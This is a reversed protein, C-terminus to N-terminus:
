KKVTVAKAASWGSYFKASGVTKYTRIRVYYKKGKALSGITRTLTSNKTITVSKSSTFKSSTSYQIQYGTGVANKKWKVTMKGSSPSTVSSLATKTPNVTITIKKTTASYNTSEPATIKITAKGIFKAKVTVKGAKSVTVSKSNSKYTPTGKKIKVGLSFVQSKTSYTRTISKATITNAIKKITFTKAATGTFYGNGTATVTAKGANTNNNYVITYDTNLVLKREGYNLSVAPKRATGNYSYSTPTITMNCESLDLAKEAWTIQGGYNQCKEPSWTNLFNNYYATATISSVGFANESINPACTKFNLEKLKSKGGGSDGCRFASASVTTTQPAFVINEKGEPCYLLETLDANYLCGDYSKYTANNPDVAIEVLKEAGAFASTTNMIYNYEVVINSVSAPIEISTLKKCGQFALSDIEIVSNPIDISEINECGSFLRNPIKTIGSSLKVTQLGTCGKFASYYITEVSDPIDLNELSTCNEFANQEIINLNEPLTITKLNNCNQFAFRGITELNGDTPFEVKSLNHCSEFARGAVSTVSKALKVSQLENCNEFCAAPIVETGEIFTVSEVASYQFDEGFTDDLCINVKRFNARVLGNGKLLQGTRPNVFEMKVPNNTSGITITDCGTNYFACWGIRRLSRPLKIGNIRAKTGFQPSGVYSFAGSGIGTVGEKVIIRKINKRINDDSVWPPLEGASYATQVYSDFYAYDYMDGEGSITLTLNDGAGKVTYTLNEGCSGSAIEDGVEEVQIGHDISLSIDSTNEEITYTYSTEQSLSECCIVTGSSIDGGIGIVNDGSLDLELADTKNGTVTFTVIDDNLIPLDDSTISLTFPSSSNVSCKDGESYAVSGGGESEFYIYSDGTYLSFDGGALTEIKYGGKELLYKAKCLDLDGPVYTRRHLKESLNPTANDFLYLSELVSGSFIFYPNGTSPTDGTEPLIKELDNTVFQFFFDNDSYIGQESGCYHLTKNAANGAMVGNEFIVCNSLDESIYICTDNSNNGDYVYNPNITLLRYKYSKGDIVFGNNNTEIGYVLIAHAACGDNHNKSYKSYDYCFAYDVYILKNTNDINKSLNYIYQLASKGSYLNMFDHQKLTYSPGTLCYQNIGVFEQVKSNNAPADVDHLVNAGNQISGPSIHGEHNQIVLSILGACVGGFSSAERLIEKVEEVTFKHQEFYAYWNYNVPYPDNGGVGIDGVSNIFKFVDDPINFGNAVVITKQPEVWEGGCSDLIDSINIRIDEASMNMGNYDSPLLGGNPISENVTAGEYAYNSNLYDFHNSNTLAIIRGSSEKGKINGLNYCNNIFCQSEGLYAIGSSPNGEESHIYGFNVCNSITLDRQTCKGVIGSIATNDNNNSSYLEGYNVCNTIQQATYSETYGIIGGAVTVGNGSISISGKSYSSSIDLYSCYGSIGGIYCYSSSNNTCDIDVSTNCNEAQIDSDYGGGGSLGGIFCGRTGNNTVTITGEATCNTLYSTRGAIVGIYKLGSNGNVNQTVVIEANRITVNKISSVSSFLGIHGYLLGNTDADTKNIKLNSITFGNGDYIFRGVKDKGEIPNWNIGSLDIDATQIFYTYDNEGEHNRIESLQAATSVKYPDSQTGSGGAFTAAAKAEDSIDTESPEEVAATEEATNAEAATEGIEESIGDTNEEVAENESLEETSTENAADSVGNSNDSTNDGPDDLSQENESNEPDGSDSNDKEEGETLGENDLEESVATVASDEGSTEAALAPAVSTICLTTALLIAIASKYIKM